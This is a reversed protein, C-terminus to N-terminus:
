PEAAGLIGMGMSLDQNGHTRATDPAAFMLTPGKVLKRLHGSEKM